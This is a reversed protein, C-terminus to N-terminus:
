ALRALAFVIYGGMSHGGLVFQNLGLHDAWALVAHAYDNMTPTPVPLAPSQGLGPLDPTILGANPLGTLQPAWITHDLPFGHLLVLPMGVGGKEYTLDRTIM